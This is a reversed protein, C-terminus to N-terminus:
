DLGKWGFCDRDFLEKFFQLRSESPDRSPEYTLGKWTRKSIQQRQTDSALEDHCRLFDKISTKFISRSFPINDPIQGDYPVNVGRFRM